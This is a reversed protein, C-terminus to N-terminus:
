RSDLSSATGTWVIARGRPRKCVGIPEAQATEHAPEPVVGLLGFFCRHDPLVPSCSRDIDTDTDSHVDDVEIETDIM